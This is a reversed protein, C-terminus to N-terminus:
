LDPKDAHFDNQTSSVTHTHLTIIALEPLYLLVWMQSKSNVTTLALAQFANM